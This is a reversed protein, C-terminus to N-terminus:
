REIIDAKKDKIFTMFEIRKFGLESLDLNDLKNKYLIVGQLNNNNEFHRVSIKEINNNSLNLRELNLLNDFADEDIEELDCWILELTKLNKLNKFDLRTLKKLKLHHLELHTVFEPLDAPFEDLVRKIEVFTLKSKDSYLKPPIHSKISIKLERLDPKNDLAYEDIENLISLNSTQIPLKDYDILEVSELKYNKELLNRDITPYELICSAMVFQKLNCLPHLANTFRTGKVNSNIIGLMGLYNHIKVTDSSNLNLTVSLFLMKETSPFQKFFDGNVVGVDGGNFVVCQANSINFATSKFANVDNDKISVNQCVLCDSNILFYRETTCYKLFIEKDFGLSIGAICSLLLIVQVQNM